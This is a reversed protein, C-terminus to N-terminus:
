SEQRTDIIIESGVGEKSLRNELKYLKDKLLKKIETEAFFAISVLQGSLLTIEVDIHGLEKPFLELRLKEMAGTNNNTVESVKQVIENFIQEINQIESRGPVAIDVQEELENLKRFSDLMKEFVRDKLPINENSASQKQGSSVESKLESGPKIHSGIHEPM